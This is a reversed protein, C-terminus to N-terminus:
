NTIPVWTEERDARRVADMVKMGAVGDAFTAPPPDQAVVRGEIRHRFVSFLRAYPHRDIGMSHMWDYATVMLDMPPPVPPGLVLDAPVEVPGSGAATALHVEDGAIWASGKTGTVRQDMLM